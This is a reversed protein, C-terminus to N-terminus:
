HEHQNICLLIFLHFSRKYFYFLLIRDTDWFVGSTAAFVRFKGRLLDPLADEERCLLLLASPIQISEYM